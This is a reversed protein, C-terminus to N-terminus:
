VRLPKGETLEFSALDDALVECWVDMPKEVLAFQHWTRHDGPYHFHGIYILREPQGKWNYRGGVVLDKAAIM